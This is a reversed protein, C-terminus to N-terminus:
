KKSSNFFILAGVVTLITCVLLVIGNGNLQIMSSTSIRDTSSPMFVSIVGWLIMCVIGIVCIILGLFQIKSKSLSGKMKENDINNCNDPESKILDVNGASDNDKVINSPDDDDGNQEDESQEKVLYDISVNFCESLLILKDIEPLSTGNEWM